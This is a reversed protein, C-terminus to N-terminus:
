SFVLTPIFIVINLCDAEKFSEIDIANDGECYEKNGIVGLSLWYHKM